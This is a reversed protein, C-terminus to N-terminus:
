SAAEYTGALRITDNVDLGDTFVGLGLTPQTSDVATSLMWVSTATGKMMAIAPYYIATSADYIFGSGVIDYAAAGTVPLAIEITTTGTSIGGTITVNVKFHITRGVRTWANETASWTMTGGQAVTPNYSTWGGYGVLNKAASGNHIVLQDTSTNVALQGESSVDDTTGIPVLHDRVGNGWTTAITAGNTVTFGSRATM